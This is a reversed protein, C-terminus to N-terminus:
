VVPWEAYVVPWEAIFGKANYPEIKDWESLIRIRFTPDTHWLSLPTDFSDV